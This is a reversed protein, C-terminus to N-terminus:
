FSLCTSEIYSGFARSDPPGKCECGSNEPIDLMKKMCVRKERSM